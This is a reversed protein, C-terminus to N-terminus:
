KFHKNEIFILVNSSKSSYNLRAQLSKHSSSTCSLFNRSFCEVLCAINVNFSDNFYVFRKLSYINKERQNQNRSFSSLSQFVIIRPPIKKLKSKSLNLYIKEQYRIIEISIKKHKLIM